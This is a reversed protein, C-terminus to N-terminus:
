KRVNACSDIADALESVRSSILDNFGSARLLSANFKWIGPWSTPVNVLKYILSIMIPYVVRRFHLHFCIAESVKLSLFNILVSVM